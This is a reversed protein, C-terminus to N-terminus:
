VGALGKQTLGQAEALQKGENASLWGDPVEAEMHCETCLMVSQRHAKHCATCDQAGHQPTHPNFEYKDKTLQELDARTIDHCAANLCFEDPDVGRAETLDSLTREDLPVYFDGSIWKLAESVQEAIVPEHCTMCRADAESRHLSALMYSGDAVEDGWKDVAAQGAEAEYTPLYPDMPDHCIANCFSPQEHWTWFGIGAAIIVLCVVGIIILKKSKKKPAPTKEEQELSNDSDPEPAKLKEEMRVEM